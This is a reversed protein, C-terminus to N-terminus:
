NISDIMGAAQLLHDYALVMDARAVALNIKSQLLLVNADLLDTTNVLNNDFKNKTIRYNEEAQTVALDYVEIKRSALLYDEYDKNITLRIADSLIGESYEVEKRRAEAQTIRSKAKWLSGLDYKVGIGVNVANSITLFHPIDAAIFGGTLALSPYLDARAISIGATAAKERFTLAQLDNRDQLATTEYAELNKLAIKQNFAGPDPVLMTQEPLGLMLDMNISALKLNSEADLVELDINSTQLRAKLLDNRALLGTEELRSLVSDRQMSQKLNEKVVQVTVFAKYLNVYADITNLILGQRDHAADLTAAKELFQASQIGYRIKGGSFIPLSVNAMGYIAQNISPSGSSSGGSTTDSSSGFLKTKLSVNPKNVRLYAGSVGANPLRDDKAERLAAASEEVKAEDIKLRGSHKISMTIADQLSLNRTGSDQQASVLLPIALVAIGITIKLYNRKQKM